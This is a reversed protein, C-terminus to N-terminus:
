EIWECDEGNSILSFEHGGIIKTAVIVWKTNEFEVIQGIKKNKEGSLRYPRGALIERAAGGLAFERWGTPMTDMYIEFM